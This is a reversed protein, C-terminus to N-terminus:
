VNEILNEYTVSSSDEISEEIESAENEFREHLDNYKPFLCSRFDKDLWCLVGLTVVSASLISIMSIAGAEFLVVYRYNNYLDFNLLFTHIVVLLYSCTIVTVVTLRAKLINPYKVSNKRFKRLIRSFQFVILLLLNIGYFLILLIVPVDYHVGTICLGISLIYFLLVVSWITGIVLSYHKRLKASTRNYYVAAFWDILLLTGFLIAALHLMMTGPILLCSSVDAATRIEFLILNTPLVVTSLMDALAWNALFIYTITRLKRFRYVGYIIAADALLGAAGILTVAITSVETTRRLSM